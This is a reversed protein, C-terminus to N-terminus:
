IRRPVLCIKGIETGDKYLCEWYPEVITNWEIWENYEKFYKGNAYLGAYFGSLCIKLLNQVLLYKRLQLEGMWGYDNGNDALRM